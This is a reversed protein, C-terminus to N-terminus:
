RRELGWGIIAAVVLVVGLGLVIPHMIFGILLVALAFALAFPWVSQQPSIAREQAEKSKSKSKSGGAKAPTQQPQGSVQNQDQEESM